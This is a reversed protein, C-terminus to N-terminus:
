LVWVFSKMVATFLRGGVAGPAPSEVTVVKRSSIGDGAVETDQLLFFNQKGTTYWTNKHTRIHGFSPLRLQSQTPADLLLANGM